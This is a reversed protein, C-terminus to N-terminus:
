IFIVPDIPSISCVVCDFLRKPSSVNDEEVVLSGVSEVGSIDDGAEELLGVAIIFIGLHCESKFSGLSEENYKRM